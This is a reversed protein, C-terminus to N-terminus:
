LTKLWTLETMSRHVAVSLWHRAQLAVSYITSVQELGQSMDQGELELREELM